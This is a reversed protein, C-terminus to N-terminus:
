GQGERNEGNREQKKGRRGGGTGKSGAGKVDVVPRLLSRIDVQHVEAFAGQVRGPVRGLVHHGDSAQILQVDVSTRALGDAELYCNILILGNPPNALPFIITRPISLLSNKSGLRLMQPKLLQINTTLYVLQAKNSSFTRSLHALAVDESLCWQGQTAGPTM